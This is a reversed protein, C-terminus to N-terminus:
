GGSGGHGGTAATRGGREPSGPPSARGLPRPPAYPRPRRLPRRVPPEPGGDGPPAGPTADARAMPDVEGIPLRGRSHLRLDLRIELGSPEQACGPRLVRRHQVRGGRPEVVRQELSYAATHLTTSPRESVV